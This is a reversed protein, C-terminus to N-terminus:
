SLYYIPSNLTLIFKLVVRCQNIPIKRIPTHVVRFLYEGIIDNRNTSKASGLLNGFFIPGSNRYCFKNRIKPLVIIAGLSLSFDDTKM